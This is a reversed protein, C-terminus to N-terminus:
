SNNLTLRLRWHSRNESQLGLEPNRTRHLLSKYQLKTQRCIWQCNDACPVFDRESLELLRANLNERAKTWYARGLSEKFLLVSGPAHESIHTTNLRRDLLFLNRGHGQRAFAAFTTHM